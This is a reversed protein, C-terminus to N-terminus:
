EIGVVRGKDRVVRRPKSIAELAKETNQKSTDAFQGVAKSMEGVAEGIAEVTQGLGMVAENVSQGLGIVAEQMQQTAQMMSDTAAAGVMGKEVQSATEAMKLRRIDNELRLAELELM